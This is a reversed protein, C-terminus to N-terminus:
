CKGEDGGLRRAARRDQSPRPALFMVNSWQFGERTLFRDLLDLAEEGASTQGKQSLVDALFVETAGTTRDLEPWRTLVERFRSEAEDVDGLTMAIKALMETALPAEFDDGSDLVRLLLDRAHEHEGVEHL